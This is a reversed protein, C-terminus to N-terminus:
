RVESAGERTADTTDRGVNCNLYGCGGPAFFGPHMKCSEECGRREGCAGGGSDEVDEGGALVVVGFFGVELGNAVRGGGIWNRGALGYDVDLCGTFGIAGGREVEFGVSLAHAPAGEERVPDTAQITVIHM